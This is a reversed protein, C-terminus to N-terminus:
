KAFTGLIFGSRKSPARLWGPRMRAPLPFM